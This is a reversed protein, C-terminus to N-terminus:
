GPSPSRGARRRPGFLVCDVGDLEDTALEEGVMGARFNRLKSSMSLLGHDVGHRRGDAMAQLVHAGKRDANNVVIDICLWGV